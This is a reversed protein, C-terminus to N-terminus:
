VGELRLFYVQGSSDGAVITTGDSVVACTSLEQEASFNAILMGSDIDWVKLTTDESTSIAFRSESAISVSNVVRSYGLLTRM